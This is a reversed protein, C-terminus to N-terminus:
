SLSLDIWGVNEMLSQDVQGIVSKAHLSELDTGRGKQTSVDM